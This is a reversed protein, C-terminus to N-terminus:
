RPTLVCFENGEPDALVRWPVGTQGVDAPEAGLARLRDAEAAITGDPPPAVDLHVRNKVTHPETTRVFELWPGRGDPDRLSALAPDARVVPWGSAASWFGALAPPDAADAVVAAVAGTDAYEPRPELVCFENGGPDALVFWPVNRQGIDVRKAGLALARDLIAMQQDASASALDLHLRNRVTKPESVPVFVLDWRWGDGPPAQVEVEGDVEGDVEGASLSVRWGLLACWFEALAAPDAADVVVNVLRTSM